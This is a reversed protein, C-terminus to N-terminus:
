SGLLDVAVRELIELAAAAEGLDIWEDIAHARELSGPGWTIAEIGADNVFNRVDTAAALGAPERDVGAVEAAHERVATAIRCDDDVAAPAYYRVREHDIPAGTEDAVAAALSTVEDDVAGASEDPLVRRDLTLTAREPVEYPTAGAGADFATVTAYARGCRPDRRRGIRRDYDAVAALLAPAAEIPNRARDPRSAHAPEGRVEFEYTAVGKTGTVTRLGTPELVLGYDGGYGSELLTRTGPEGTEEGMAAQLVLSGDLDGAEIADALDAVALMGVALGTKTDASGRGHLRGDEVHGAYPDHTWRDHDGAPVVDLHGNLVLTPDGSGVTAVTQPRSATPEPVLTAEIGRDAFWSAVFEACAREHGPPNESEIRVLEAALTDLTERRRDVM